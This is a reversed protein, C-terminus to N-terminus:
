SRPGVPAALVSVVAHRRVREVEVTVGEVAIREGARPVRGFAHVVRGGVTHATGEGWPTGIWPEVETIRLDGPLRVRGDPLREPRSAAPKLEDVVDGIVEQLVDEISVLGATGGFEDLVIAFQQREERMRTLLREATMQRPVALIPRVLARLSLADPHAAALRAADKAHVFGVIDDFGGRHVPLRTFPSATITALAQNGPTDLDLAQIRTRPVMLEAVTVLGLRLARRLRRQEEPKLVGGERSEAILLELEEPSHIHRHSTHEFGFLRLVLTGSGNLVRIFWSFLRLSWQMPVVTWLAVRTPYQLALSKPVLEGLVMQLITLAVLVVVAATAQATAAQMGGLWAFLPTLAEAITAQGYAGLVLSSVTIGIQCAAIYRDLAHADRLFPLLRRALAGGKEAQQQIRSTRVRVAAFEAAV